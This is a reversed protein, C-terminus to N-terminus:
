RNLLFVIRNNNTLIAYNQRHVRGFFLLFESEFIVFTNFQKSKLYM